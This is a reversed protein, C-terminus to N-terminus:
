STEVPKLSDLYGSGELHAQLRRRLKSERLRVQMASLGTRHSVERRPAGAEFRLPLLLRDEDALTALFREYLRRLEQEIARAEPSARGAPDGRDSRTVVDEPPLPVLRSSRRFRDVILNRAIAFLFLQFSRGPDFSRRADDAFARLFSEQLVDDLDFPSVVGQFRYRGGAADVVFGSSLERGLDPAYRAYVEALATRDGERFRRLREPDSALWTM